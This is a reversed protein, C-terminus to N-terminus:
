RYRHAYVNKIESNLFQGVSPANSCQVAVDEPVGQYASVRGNKWTVLLEGTEDDFGIDTAVSSFVSKSWSM